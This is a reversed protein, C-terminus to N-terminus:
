YISDLKPFAVGNRYAWDPAVTVEISDCEIALERSTEWQIRFLLGHDTSDVSIGSIENLGWNAEPGMQEEPLQNSFKVRTCRTFLLRVPELSNPNPRLQGDARRTSSIFVEFDRLLNCSLIRLVVAEEFGFWQALSARAESLRMQQLYWDWSHEAALKRSFAVFAEYSYPNIGTEIRDELLEASWVVSVELHQFEKPVQRGLLTEKKGDDLWWEGQHGAFSNTVLFSPREVCELPIRGIVPWRGTKTAHWIGVLVPPFLPDCDPVGMSPVWHEPCHHIQVLPGHEPIDCLYHAVVDDGVRAVDGPVARKGM